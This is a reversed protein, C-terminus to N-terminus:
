DTVDKLKGEAFDSIRKLGEEMVQPSNVFSFRLYGEGARGFASGPVTVVQVRDLIQRAVTSSNEGLRSCNVFCYFSGGPPLASFGPIENIRTTLLERNQRYIALMEQIEEEAELAALAAYQSITCTSLGINGHIDTMEAILLPHGVAYGVRWGTMAQTKSFSFISVVHEKLEECSALSFHEEEYVLREYTEDLIILLNNKRALQGLRLLEEPDLVAGTPNNPTNIMIVKTRSSIRKEVERARLQFGDEEKVPVWVPLGGALHIQPAYNVWSPDQLIVEEGPNVVALLTALLAEIAGMTVLIEQRPDAKIGNERELKDAIGERLRPLGAYTTYHTKGAAAAQCAAEVISPPTDFQPDGVGFNIVDDYQSALDKMVFVEGGTIKKSRSSIMSEM